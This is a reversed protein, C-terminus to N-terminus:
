TGSTPVSAEVEGPSGALQAYIRASMVLFLVSLAGIALQTALAVLLAGVSMPETGGLLLNAVAGLLVGVAMLVILAAIMLLVLFGFLRWWNGSTLRWSRQLIGIPGATEASAVPASVILRVALFILLIMLAFFGLAAAGSPQPPAVQRALLIAAAVLPLVWILMAAVLAPMRRAGHNIAERVTTPPGIAIRLIALQGVVGILVAAFAVLMWAGPGPMEGQPAPPTVVSQITSPLVILALAIAALLRGDRRLIDKAEDWSRSISLKRAM